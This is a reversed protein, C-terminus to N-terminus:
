EKEFELIEELQSKIGNFKRNYDKYISNAGLTIFLFIVALIGLFIFILFNNNYVDIHHVYKVYIPTISIVWFFTIMFDNTKSKLIWDEYSLITKLYEKVSTQDFGISTIVKLEKYHGLFSYVMLLGAILLPISYYYKFFFVLGLGFSIAAYVLALYTGAKQITLITDLSSSVNQETLRKFLTFNISIKKDQENLKEQWNEKLKDIEM